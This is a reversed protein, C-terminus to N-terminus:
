PSVNGFWSPAGKRSTTGQFYAILADLRDHFDAQNLFLRRGGPVQGSRVLVSKIGVHVRFDIVRAPALGLLPADGLEGHSGGYFEVAVAILHGSQVRAHIKALIVLADLADSM